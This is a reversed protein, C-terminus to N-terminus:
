KAGGSRLAQRMAWEALQRGYERVRLGYLYSTEGPYREPWIPPFDQASM